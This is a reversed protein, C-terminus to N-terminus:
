RLQSLMLEVEEDNNDGFTTGNGDDGDGDGRIGVETMSVHMAANVTCERGVDNSNRAGNSISFSLTCLCGTCAKKM